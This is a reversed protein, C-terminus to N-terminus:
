RRGRSMNFPRLLEAVVVRPLNAAGSTWDITLKSGASGSSPTNGDLFDWARVSNESPTSNDNIRFAMDDNEAWTGDVIAQVISTIVLTQETPHDVTWATPSFAVTSTPNFGVNPSFVGDAFVPADGLHGAILGEVNGVTGIAANRPILILTASNIVVLPPVPVGRFRLGIHIPSGSHGVNEAVSSWVAGQEQGDDAADTIGVPGYVPM